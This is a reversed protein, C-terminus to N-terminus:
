KRGTEDYLDDYLEDLVEMSESFLEKMKRDHSNRAKNIQRQIKNLKSHYSKREGEITKIIKKIDHIAKGFLKIDKPKM